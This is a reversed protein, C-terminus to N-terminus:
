EATTRKRRAVDSLVSGGELTIVRDAVALVEPTHAVVLVMHRRALEVLLDAVLAIGDRDLNADPEDLLFLPAPRCLVRALAIRQREGVSLSEVRLDLPDPAAQRLRELMGVREIAARIVEEPTDSDLFRLCERVTARPPLYPRQALFAISRRWRLVDVEGLPVGDVLVRGDEVAGLGLLARLCTSKGSGNPGALALLEGSRWAFSVGSLAERGDSGYAFRVADVEVREPSASPAAGGASRKRAGADVVRAVLRLRPENSVLEQVGRAIGVFAPANSVLLCARLGADSWPLGRRWADFVVAAGVAVALLAMPLRGLIGAARGARRAQVDWSLSTRGFRGVFDQDRGAAVLELRGECADTVDKAVQDWARWAETQARDVWRRSTFLGVGGVLLTLAAVLTVNPPQTAAVFVALVVAAILNAGLNPLTEALLVAIRHLGEFLSGRAEEDPLLSPQLVDGGLVASVVRRYLEAHSHATFSRQAAGRVALVATLTVSLALAPVPGQLVFVYVIAPALLREVFALAAVAANRGRTGRSSLRLAARLPAAAGM